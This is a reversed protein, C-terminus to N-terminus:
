KATYVCRLQWGRVEVTGTSGSRRFQVSYVEPTNTNTMVTQDIVHTHINLPDTNIDFTEAFFETSTSKNFLRYGYTGEVNTTRIMIDFLIIRTDFGDLAWLTDSGFTSMLFARDGLTGNTTTTIGDGDTLYNDITYTLTEGSNYKGNNITSLTDYIDLFNSDHIILTDYIEIPVTGGDGKGGKLTDTDLIKIFLTDGASWNSISVARSFDFAYASTTFFM